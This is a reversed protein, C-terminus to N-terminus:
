LTQNQDIFVFLANITEPYTYLTIEYYVKFKDGNTFDNPCEIYNNDSYFKANKFSISVYENKSLNLYKYPNDEVYMFEISNDLYYSVGKEEINITTNESKSGTPEAFIYSSSNENEANELIVNEQKVNDTSCSTLIFCTFITSIIIKKLGMIYLLVGM